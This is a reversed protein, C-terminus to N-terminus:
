SKILFARIDTLFAHIDTGEIDSVNMHKVIQANKIKITKNKGKFGIQADVAEM